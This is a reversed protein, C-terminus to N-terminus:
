AVDNLLVETATSNETPPVKKVEKTTKKTQAVNHRHMIYLLLVFGVLFGALGGGITLWTKRSTQISQIELILDPTIVWSSYVRKEQFWMITLKMDCVRIKDLSETVDVKALKCMTSFPSPDFSILPNHSINYLLLQPLVGFDPLTKIKCDSLDLLELPAKIPKSIEMGNLSLHLLPNGNLYLKRLSPLQFISDSLELIVNKSLDLTQLYTLYTFADKDISYIQNEALYLYKISTYSSFTDAHLEQLKNDSFDLIEIGGRLSPIKSLRLGACHAGYMEYAYEYTCRTPLSALAEIDTMEKGNNSKTFLLVLVVYCNFKFM